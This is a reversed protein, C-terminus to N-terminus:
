CHKKKDVRSTIITVFDRYGKKLSIEDMGIVGLSNINKWDIKDNVRREVVGLVAEETIREKVAVDAITSNVLEMLLHNEYDTTHSGNPSHWSAKATTTPHDQCDECIYRHPSYVIFTHNGFAPLHKLKRERDIGHRKYIKKGCIRCAVHDEMTEVTILIDGFKDKETKLVKTEPLDFELNISCM